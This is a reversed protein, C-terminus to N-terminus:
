VCVRDSQDHAAGALRFDHCRKSGRRGRRVGDLRQEFGADVHEADVHTVRRMLSQTFQVAENACELPLFTARDCNQDVQLTRLNAQTLYRATAICELLTLANTEDAGLFGIVGTDNGNWMRFHERGQLFLFNNQDIVALHTQLDCRDLLVFAFRNNEDASLDLVALTDVQGFVIRGM